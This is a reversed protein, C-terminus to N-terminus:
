IRLIGEMIQVASGSLRVQEVNEGSEDVVVEVGIVSRRGIEVGQVVEFRQAKHGKLTLYSGLACAASGTAPDEMTDELMRTRVRTLGVQAGDREKELGWNGNEPGDNPSEKLIVYYYRAVFGERWEQDLLGHFDLESSTNKVLGLLELSELRILLFTMGLVVSVIPAKMEAKRLKPHSSLGSVPGELDEITHAHIHVNHPIDAQVRIGSEESEIISLPIRGAKTVFVGKGNGM